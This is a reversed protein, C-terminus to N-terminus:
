ILIRGLSKCRAPPLISRSTEKIPLGDWTACAVLSMKSITASGLEVPNAGPPEDQWHLQLWQQEPSLGEAAGKRGCNGAVDVFFTTNTLSVSTPLKIPWLPPTMLCSIASLPHWMWIWGFFSVPLLWIL